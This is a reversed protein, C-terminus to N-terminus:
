GNVNILDEEEDLPGRVSIQIEQLTKMQKLIDLCEEGYEKSYDLLDEYKKAKRKSVEELAMLSFDSFSMGEASMNRMDLALDQDSQAGIRGIMSSYPSDIWQKDIREYGMFRYNVVVKNQLNRHQCAQVVIKKNTDIGFEFLYPFIEGELDKKLLDFYTYDKLKPVLLLDTFSAYRMGVYDIM